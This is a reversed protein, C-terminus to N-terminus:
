CLSSRRRIRQMLVVFWELRQQEQKIEEHALSRSAFLFISYQCPDRVTARVIYGNQLLKMVLWSGVYGSAGTVVVSGKM